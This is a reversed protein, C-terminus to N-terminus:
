AYPAASFPALCRCGLRSNAGYHMCYRHTRARWSYCSGRLRKGMSNRSSQHSSRSSKVWAHRWRAVEAKESTAAARAGRAVPKEAM